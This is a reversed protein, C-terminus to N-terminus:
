PLPVRGPGQGAPKGSNVLFDNQFTAAGEPTNALQLFRTASVINKAELREAVEELRLGEIITFKIGFEKPTTSLTTILEDLDTGPVLQFKGAKLDGDAGRLKLRLRFFDPNDIIGATKLNDAIQSVSQGAEITFTVPEKPTQPESAKLTQSMVLFIVVGAAVVGLIMTLALIGKIVNGIFRVTQDRRKVVSM